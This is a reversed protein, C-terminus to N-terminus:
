GLGHCGTVSRPRQEAVESPVAIKPSLLSMPSVGGTEEVRRGECIARYLAFCSLELDM